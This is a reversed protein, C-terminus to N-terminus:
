QSVETDRIEVGFLRACLRWLTLGSERFIIPNRQANIAAIYQEAQEKNFLKSNSVYEGDDNQFIVRYKIGFSKVRFNMSDEKNIETAM